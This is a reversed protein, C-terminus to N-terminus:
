AGGGGGGGGAPAPHKQGGEGGPSIPNPSAPRIVGYKVAAYLYRDPNDSLLQWVASESHFAIACSKQAADFLFPVITNKSIYETIDEKTYYAGMQKQNIYQEFIYGLVDPNIENGAKHVRDDLHWDWDDFFDFIQEFSQDPIKINPNAEELQHVDFLGGNLYPVKGLLRELEPTRDPSGLGDHFLKILFYRYFSHFENQGQQEQCQKLRDRLYDRNPVLEGRRVDALFDGKQIFYIFMLRNLMLSAYWAQDFRSQIGQIFDLFQEHQKEFQKYFKNTVKEADFAKRAKAKVGVLALQDEEELAIALAELKQLFLNGVQASYFRSERSKAPKSDKDVWQWVQEQAVFDSFVLIHERTYLAVQRDIKRRTASDPMTSDGEVGCQYVVFSRKQAIAKVWYNKGDISLAISVADVTDWGLEEIFLSEFDCQELYTQVRNRDVQM